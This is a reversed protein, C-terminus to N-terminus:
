KSEEKKKMKEIIKNVRIEIESSIAMAFFILSIFLFAITGISIFNLLFPHLNLIYEKLFSFIFLFVLFSVLILFANSLKNVRIKIEEFKEQPSSNFYVIMKSLSISLLWIERITLLLFVVIFFFILLNLLGKAPIKQNDLQLYIGEFSSSLFPYFIIFLLILSLFVLIKPLCARLDVLATVYLDEIQGM